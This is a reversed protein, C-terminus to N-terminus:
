FAFINTSGSGSSALDAADGAYNATFVTTGGAYGSSSIAASAVGSSNLTGTGVLQSGFYFNVTGTPAATGCCIQTVTATLTINAGAFVFGPSVSLTTNTHGPEITVTELTSSSSQDGRDGSYAAIVPM